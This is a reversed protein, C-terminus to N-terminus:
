EIVKFYIKAAEVAVYDRWKIGVLLEMAFKHIVDLVEQFKYENMKGIGEKM